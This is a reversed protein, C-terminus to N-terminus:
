PAYHRRVLYGATIFPVILPVGFLLVDLAPSGTAAFWFSPALGGFLGYPWVLTGILKDRRTWGRSKWLRYVGWFWGALFLFGGLLVLGVTLWDQPPRPVLEAPAPARMLATLADSESADPAVQVQAAASRVLTERQEPPLHTARREVADLYEQVLPHVDPM